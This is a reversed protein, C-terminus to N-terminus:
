TPVSLIQWNNVQGLKLIYSGIKKEWWHCIHWSKLYKPCYISIKMFFCFVCISPHFQYRDPNAHGSHRDPDPLIIRIRCCKNLLRNSTANSSFKTFMRGGLVMRFGDWELFLKRGLNGKGGNREVACVKKGNTLNWGQIFGQPATNRIRIWRIWMNKPRRSRSGDTLPISVSGSRSGEIVKSKKDKFIIYMYRSFTILLFVKKFILKKNGDQSPWHRFHCSGSGCGSGSGNTLPM